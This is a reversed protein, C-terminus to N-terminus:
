DKGEPPDAWNTLLQPVGQSALEGLNQHLLTRALYESPPGATDAIIAVPNVIDSLTIDQGTMAKAMQEGSRTVFGSAIAEATASGPLRMAVALSTDAGVAMVRATVDIGGNTVVRSVAAQGLKTSGAGLAGSGASVIRGGIPGAVMGVGGNIAVEYPNVKGKEWEQQAINLGAAVLGGGIVAGGPTAILLVGAGTVAVAMGYEWHDGAWNGVDGAIDTVDGIRDWAADRFQRLPDAAAQDRYRQMEADTVPRQGLPDVRLLPDNGAYHYPHSAWATGPVSALPDPSLFGRTAPDYVRDRLWTLGCFEVEGRYGIGVGASAPAGWSDRDGGPTGQWDPDLWRATGGSMAAWPTGWGILAEGGIMVPTAPVSATDWLLSTGGVAALHGMADVTVPVGDVACLRGFADWEYRHEGGATRRGAADYTFGETTIRGAADYAFGGSVVRGAADYAYSSVGDGLLQGAADYRYTRSVGDVASEILRGTDDRVLRATRGNFDYGTLWGDTYTWSARLGPGAAGTMRGMADRQLTIGDLLVVRGNEDYTYTTSTGDPRVLALRDGDPSYRWALTMGDRGHSVLRDAADWALRHQFSGPERIGVVRGVADREIAIAEGEGEGEGARVAVVRGAADRSLRVSRGSADAWGAVRGAPDYTWTTVGGIPDTAAVLRGVEDFRQAVVAGLPGTATVPRGALDYAYATGNGLPDVAEVLQGAADFRFTSGDRGAPRGAADWGFRTTGFGPVRSETLRGAADYRHVAVGGDPYRVATLLGDRDYEFLTRDRAALRGCPDYAFTVTRGEPTIRRRLRGAPTYEFRTTAGTGDASTLLRGCRDYSVRLVTGDARTEAAPRGQGDYTFSTVALGDSRGTIRGAADVSLSRRVGVPDVTAVLTGSADHERLWTAGAPDTSSVLRCLADYGFDWKTGDPAIRRVVNGLPDYERGTVRGLADTSMTLHGHPGYALEQRAGLPDVVATARGAPTYEFRWGQVSVPRGHDDYAFETRRGEPSVAALVRGAPDRVVVTRAGQGDTAAVLDGQDDYTYTVTVGDPDTTRHVLGDRVLWRTVGGEPDRALSPLWEDRDYQLHTVLDPDTRIEVLRGVGDYRYRVTEGTPHVVATLRAADDWQMTTVAGTRDTVSVPNGWEDYTRSLQAGHGDVLTLLRGSPDHVFTNAPGDAEDTVATVGGPLYAIAVQRGFPTAQGLVRGDPDYTNVVEAVGDADIVGLIRGREDLEYRYDGAEVLFGAEDYRYTIRRGTGPQAAVIREGSWSLALSRGRQHHLVALRGEGDYSFDIRTGPGAHASVPRGAPDFMWVRGDFWRLEVGADVPVPVANVGAIRGYGGGQRPFLAQQGDPGAYHAGDPRTHLRTTAWSAWGPGHGGVLDSRSNYVRRFLLPDDTEDHVFNGSAANVPDNTYGSTPPFGHAKPDDYTVHQRAGGLGSSSLYARIVSDPVRRITGCGGAEEFLFAVTAVQLAQRQNADVFRGLANIADHADLSGWALESTFAQHAAFLRRQHDALELDLAATDRAFDHLNGPRASSVDM